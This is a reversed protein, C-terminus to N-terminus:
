RQWGLPGARRLEDLTLPVARDPVRLSFAAPNISRNTEVQSLRIKLDTTIEGHEDTVRLRAITPLAGGEDAYEVGLRGSVGAVVRWGDRRRRLYATAGNAMDVAAWDGSYTRAAVAESRITGCGSLIALLDDPTVAVGTLAEIVSAPAADALLRNERPLLLSATGARSVLIFVPPGFPAVAELRMASPREFGAIVRGRLKGGGSRGSVALEAQLTRVGRCGASAAEFMGAPDAAPTGAGTPLRFPRAACGGAAVALSLAVLALRARRSPHLIV